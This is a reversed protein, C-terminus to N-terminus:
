QQGKQADEGGVVGVILLGGEANAFASAYERMEHGASKARDLWAGRKYELYLGERERQQILGLVDAPAVARGTLVAGLMNMLRAAAM